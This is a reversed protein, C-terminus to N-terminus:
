RDLPATGELWPDRPVVPVDDVTRTLLMEHVRVAEAHHGNLIDIAKTEDEPSRIRVWVLIGGLDAIDARKRRWYQGIVAYAVLGALAAFVVATILSNLFGAGLSVAVLATSIGVLYCVIATWSMTLLAFDDKLIVPQRPAHPVDALDEIPPIKDGFRRRLAEAPGLLDIDARDFGAKLLDDLAADLNQMTRFVGAVERVRRADLVDDELEQDLTM